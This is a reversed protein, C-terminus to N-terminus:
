TLHIRGDNQKNPEIDLGWVFWENAKRIPFGRMAIENYFTTFGIPHYKNEAKCCWARYAAHLIGVTKPPHAADQTGAAVGANSKLKRQHIEASPTRRKKPQDTTNSM